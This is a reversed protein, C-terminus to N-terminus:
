LEEPPPWPRRLLTWVSPPGPPPWPRRILTWASVPEFPRVIAGRDDEEPDEDLVQPKWTRPRAMELAREIVTRDDGWAIDDHSMDFTTWAGRDVSVSVMLDPGASVITVRAVPAPSERRYMRVESHELVFDPATEFPAHARQWLGLAERVVVETPVGRDEAARRIYPPVSLTQELAERMTPEASDGLDVRLRVARDDAVRVPPSPTTRPRPRPM